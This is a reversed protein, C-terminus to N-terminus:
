LMEALSGRIELMGTVPQASPVNPASAYYLTAGADTAAMAVPVVEVGVGASVQRQRSCVTTVVSGTVSVGVPNRDPFFLPKKCRNKSLDLGKGFMEM